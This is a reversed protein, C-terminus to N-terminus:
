SDFSRSFRSASITPDHSSPDDGCGNGARKQPEDVDMPLADSQSGEVTAQSGRPEGDDGLSTGEELDVDTSVAEVASAVALEDM